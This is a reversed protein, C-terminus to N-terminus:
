YGKLTSWFESQQLRGIIKRFQEAQRAKESPLVKIDFIIEWMKIQDDFSFTFENRAWFWQQCNPCYQSHEIEITAFADEEQAIQKYQRYGGLTKVLRLIKEVWRRKCGNLNEYIHPQRKTREYYITKNKVAKLKM